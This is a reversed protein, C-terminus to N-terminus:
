GCGVGCKQLALIDQVLHDVDPTGLGTVLDYGPGADDVANGGLTVDRFAPLRAGQAIEYLLPNLEGVPGGGNHVLYDNMLATLGAWIPASLSTGGGVAHQRRFVIRVGTYPDAVAAIDPTLRRGPPAAVRLGSQWPPRAFLNSVGGGTGQSIAPAFWSQEAQWHGDADTSLTTGGVDTMEPVSAVSDLGVDDPAPPSSWNHGGKCELGALDGSANFATTGRRMATSLASRVPLLDAATAIKDCGWGISFSWVAGPYRRDAEDMLAGIKQYTADGSVTSRANVLVTKADPAVAHIAELDMTAEGSRQSPMDGMLEPTFKPLDFSTAFMDLDEQDFGDFAFVLVTTGKGTYGGDRLTAANYTRLLGAPSLGQDPVDLPVIFPVSEHHPIYGLIRGLESVESAIAVPIAPQQPSAYFVQGLRSRYDHVAVDFAAGVAPPAGTLAAWRNGPQWRVSLGHQQAWDILAAPRSDTHLGAVLQVQDTGAPGLDTSAALLSAYPGTIIGAPVPTSDPRSTAFTLGGVSVVVACLSLWKMARATSM